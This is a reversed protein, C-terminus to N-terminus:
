WKVNPVDAKPFALQFGQIIAERPVDMYAIGNEICTMAALIRAIAPAGLPTEPACLCEEGGMDKLITLVGHVYATTDNGDGPPAWRHIINRINYSEDQELLHLRYTDMLKWAARYGMPMTTFTVFAPDTQVKTRGVWRSVGHRINLPNNNRFGRTNTKKKKM